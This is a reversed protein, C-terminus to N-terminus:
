TWRVCACSLVRLLNALRVILRHAIVEVFPYYNLRTAGLLEEGPPPKVTLFYCYWGPTSAALTLSKPDFRSFHGRPCIPVLGALDAM